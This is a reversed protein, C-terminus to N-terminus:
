WASSQAEIRARLQALNQALPFRAASLAVPEFDPCKLLQLLAAACHYRDLYPADSELVHFLLWAADRPAARKALSYWIMHHEGWHGRRIAELLDALM